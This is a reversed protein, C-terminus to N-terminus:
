ISLMNHQSTHSGSVPDVLMGVKDRGGSLVWTKLMYEYALDGMGGWTAQLTNNPGAICCSMAVLPLLLLLPTLM